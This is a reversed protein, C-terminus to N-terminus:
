SVFGPVLQRYVRRTSLATRHWSYNAAHSRGAKAVRNAIEPDDLFMLIRSAIAEADHPKAYQAANGAAERLSPIDSAVVPVGRAMAELVPLGFGEYWSPYVFVDADAYLQELREDSPGEVVVLHGAREQATLTAVVDSSQWGIRGAVYLVADPVSQRVYRMAEIVALHNKRPEITGVILVGPRSTSRRPPNSSPIRVGNPIAVVRDRVFPFREAIETAVSASVAIVRDASALVRPVAKSLYAVLSPEGLDPRVLFSLDHITVVSPAKAPPLVFDPGHFVDVAGIVREVALPVRLRQWAATVWRESVPLRHITRAAGPPLLERLRTAEDDRAALLLRYDDSADLPLLARLLERTYRGVGAYQTAAPTADFGVRM